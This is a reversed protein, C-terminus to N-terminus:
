RYEVLEGLPIRDAGAQWEAPTKRGPDKQSAPYGFSVLIAVEEEDGAGVLEKMGEPDALANPCSAIGEDWAAVMMNQAARGADFQTWPGIATVIAVTVPTDRVNSPRTVMESADLRRDRLVVFRRQQRNMGSGTMRGAQLIREFIDEPIDGDAYNRTDRKSAIALQTEV